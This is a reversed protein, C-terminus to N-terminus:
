LDCEADDQEAVPGGGGHAQEQEQQRGRADPLVDPPVARGATRQGVAAATRGVSPAICPLLLVILLRPAIRNLYM